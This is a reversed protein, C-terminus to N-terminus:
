SESRAIIEQSAEPPIPGASSFLMTAATVFVGGAAAILVRPWRLTRSSDTQTFRVPLRRLVLVFAVMTLTEVLLQALALDPGGTLVFLGGIGYGIVGVMLV